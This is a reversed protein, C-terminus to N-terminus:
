KSSDARKKPFMAQDDAGDLVMLWQGHAEQSLYRSVANLVNTKPDKLSQISLKSGIAKYAYEFQEVSRANVWLVKAGPHEESYKHAYEVAIHTKSFYANAEM